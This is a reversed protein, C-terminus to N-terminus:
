WVEPISFAIDLVGLVPAPGSFDCFRFFRFNELFGFFDRSPAFRTARLDEREGPHGLVHFEMNPGIFVVLFFDARARGSSSGAARRGRCGRRSPSQGGWVCRICREACSTGLPVEVFRKGDDASLGTPLDIGIGEERQM